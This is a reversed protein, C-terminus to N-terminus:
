LPCLFSGAQQEKSYNKDLQSFLNVSVTSNNEDVKM